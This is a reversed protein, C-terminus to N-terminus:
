PPNAAETFDCIYTRGEWMLRCKYKRVETEINASSEGWVDQHPISKLCGDAYYQPTSGKHMPIRLYLRAKYDGSDHVAQSAWLQVTLFGNELVASGNFIDFRWYNYEQGYQDTIALIFAM